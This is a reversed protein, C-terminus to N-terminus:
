ETSAAKDFLLLRRVGIREVCLTQSYSKAPLRAPFLLGHGPSWPRILLPIPQRLLDDCLQAFGLQGLLLCLLMSKDAEAHLRFEAEGDAPRWFASPPYTLLLMPSAALRDCLAELAGARHAPDRLFAGSVRLGQVLALQAAHVELDTGYIRSLAELFGRGPALLSQSLNLIPNESGCPAHSGPQRRLCAGEFREGCAPHEFVDIASPGDEGHRSTARLGM